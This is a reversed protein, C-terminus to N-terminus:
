PRDASAPLRVVCATPAGFPALATDGDPGGVALWAGQVVGLHLGCMADPHASVLELFPCSRLHLVAAPATEALDPAFGLATLVRAVTTVPGAADTADDAPIAAALQRGWQRGVIAARGRVDGDHERETLHALLAAALARYPAPAPTTGTAATRYRWAPRGPQGNSARARVLLGATTLRDLHARVTSPHLDTEQVIEAATSGTAAARVISLIDVRSSSSLAQHRPTDIM